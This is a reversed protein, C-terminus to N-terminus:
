CLLVSLFWPFVFNNHAVTRALFNTQNLPIKSMFACSQLSLIKDDQSVYFYKLDLMFVPHNKDAPFPRFAMIKLSKL